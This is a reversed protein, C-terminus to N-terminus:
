SGSETAIGFEDEYAAAIILFRLPITLIIGVYCAAAGLSGLMSALVVLLLREWFRRRTAQWSAQWAESFRYGRDAVLPMVFMTRTNFYWMWALVFFFGVMAVAMLGLGAVAAVPEEVRGGPQQPEVSAGLIVMGVLMVAYLLFMPVIQILGLIIGSLSAPWFLEWGRALLATDVPRGRLNHMACTYLSCSLAGMAFLVPVVCALESVIFILGCLLVPLIWESWQRGYSNFARSLIEGLPTAGTGGPSVPPSGDM